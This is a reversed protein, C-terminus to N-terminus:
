PLKGEPPSGVSKNIAKKRAPFQFLLRLVKYCYYNVLCRIKRKLKMLREEPKIYCWKHIFISNRM